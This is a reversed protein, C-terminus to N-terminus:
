WINSRSLKESQFVQHGVLEAPQNPVPNITHCPHQHNKNCKFKIPIDHKLGILNLGYKNLIIDGMSYFM